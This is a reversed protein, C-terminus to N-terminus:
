RNNFNYPKNFKYKASSVRTCRKIREYCLGDSFLCLAKKDFHNIKCLLIKNIIYSQIKLAADAFRLRRPIAKTTNHQTTTTRRKGFFHNITMGSEVIVKSIMQFYSHLYGLTCHLNTCTQALRYNRALRHLDTIGHLDAFSDIMIM